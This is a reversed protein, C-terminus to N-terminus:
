RQQAALRRLRENYATLAPDEGSEGRAVARDHAREAARNARDESRSWQLLRGGPGDGDPVRRVVVRHRRGARTTCRTSAGPRPRIRRLQDAAATSSMMVIVGFFAHFPAPLMLELMRGGHASRRPWPDVALIPGFFLLGTVLFHLLM